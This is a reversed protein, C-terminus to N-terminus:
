VITTLLYRLLPGPLHLPGPGNKIKWKRPITFSTTALSTAVRSFGLAEPHPLIAPIVVGIILLGPIALVLILIYNYWFGALPRHWGIQEWYQKVEAKSIKKNKQTAQQNM